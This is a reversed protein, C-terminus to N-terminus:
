AKAIELGVREWEEMLPLILESHLLFDSEVLDFCWELIEPDFHLSPAGCHLCVTVQSSWGM